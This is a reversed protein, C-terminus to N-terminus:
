RRKCPIWNTVSCKSSNSCLGVVFLPLSKDIKHPMTFFFFFFLTVMQAVKNLAQKSQMIKNPGSRVRVERHFLSGGGGLTGRSVSRGEKKM